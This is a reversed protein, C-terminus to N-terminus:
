RVFGTGTRQSRRKTNSGKLVAVHDLLDYASIKPYVGFDQPLFGLQKKIFLKDKIVDIGNFLISGSDPDQLGAITKM